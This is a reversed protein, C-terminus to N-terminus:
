PARSHVLYADYVCIQDAYADLAYGLEHRQDEAAIDHMQEEPAM